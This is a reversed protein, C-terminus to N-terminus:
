NFPGKLALTADVFRDIMGMSLDAIETGTMLTRALFSSSPERLMHERAADTLMMPDLGSGSGINDRTLKEIEKMDSNYQDMLSEYDEAIEGMEGNIVGQTAQMIPDTLKMLNDVRFMENWNIPNIGANPGTFSINGQMVAFTAVAAIIAGLKEGFVKVAVDQIVSILIMAAIANAAAGAISGAVASLGLMAGVAANTGLIGPAAAFAAPGMIFFAGVIMIIAVVFKFIGRQYWRKKVIQYSNMVLLKNRTAVQNQDVLSLKKLTPYNMPIIFGSPDEDKLADGAKITVAKGGYVYNNHEMGVIELRRYMTNDYQYYIYVVGSNSKMDLMRDYISGRGSGTVILGDPIYEDDTAGLEVPYPESRMWVDGRKAGRRGRGAFVQEDIYLWTIFMNFDALLSGSSQMLLNTRRPAPYSPRPPEQNTNARGSASTVVRNWNDWRIGAINAARSQRYYNAFETRNMAQYPILDKLFQYIYRGSANDLENLSLGFVMYIFDVDGIDENEKLQDLLEEIDGKNTAKKYAQSIPEYYEDVLDPHDIFRNQHRLPIVPFLTADNNVRHSLRDLTPNGSGIEYIFVKPGELHQNVTEAKSLVYSWIPEVYQESRVTTITGMGDDTRTQERTERSRIRHTQTVNLTFRETITQPSSTIRGRHVSYFYNSEVRDYYGTYTSPTNTVTRPRGDNYETIVRVNRNLIVPTNLTSTSPGRSYDSTIPVQNFSILNERSRIPIAISSVDDDLSLVYRAYIYKADKNYLPMLVTKNNSPDVFRIDLIRSFEDYEYTWDRTLLEPHEEALYAEAFLEPDPLGVFAAQVWVTQNPDADIYPVLVAPNQLQDNTISADIRSVTYERNAWKLFRNQSSAPGHMMGGVIDSALNNSSTLVSSGVVFKLYDTTDEVDGALNFVSSAVYTKKKSSFIGM